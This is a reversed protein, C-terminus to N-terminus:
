SLAAKIEDYQGFMLRDLRWCNIGLEAAVGRLWEERLRYPTRPPAGEVLDCLTHIRHDLAIHDLILPHSVDMCMNRSYKQGIMPFTRLWNLLDGTRDHGEWTEAMADPGGAEHFRRLATLLAPRTRGARPPALFRHSLEELRAAAAEVNDPDGEFLADWSILHANGADIFASWRKVGGNTAFSQVFVYWAWGDRRRLQEGEEFLGDLRERYGELFGRLIEVFRAETVM